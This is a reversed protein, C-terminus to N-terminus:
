MAARSEGRRNDTPQSAHVGGILVGVVKPVIGFWMGVVFCSRVCLGREGLVRLHNATGSLAVAGDTCHQGSAHDHEVTQETAFRFFFRGDDDLRGGLGFVYFFADRQAEVLGVALLQM